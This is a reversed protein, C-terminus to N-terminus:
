SLSLSLSLDHSPLPISPRPHSPAPATPHLRIYPVCGGPLSLLSVFLTWTTPLGHRAFSGNLSSALSPCSATDVQWFLLGLGVDQSVDFARCLATLGRAALAPRLQLLAARNIVTPQSLPLPTIAHHTTAPHLCCHPATVGRTHYSTGPVLRQHGGRQLRQRPVRWAGRHRRAPRPPEARQGRPPPPPPRVRVCPRAVPVGTHYSLPHHPCRLCRESARRTYHVQDVRWFTDDDGVLLFQLRKLVHPQAALLFALGEEVKCCASAAAYYEETCRRTLVYVPENEPCAFYTNRPGERRVCHRLMFRVAFTDELLVYVRDYSSLNRMWTRAAPIVRSRLFLGNKGATSTVLAAIQDLRLVADAAAPQQQQQQASVAATTTPALATPSTAAYWRQLVYVTAIVVLLIGTRAAHRMRKNQEVPHM